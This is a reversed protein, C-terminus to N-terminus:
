VSAQKIASSRCRGTHELKVRRESVALRRGDLRRDDDPPPTGEVAASSTLEETSNSLEESANAALSELYAASLLPAVAPVPRSRIGALLM